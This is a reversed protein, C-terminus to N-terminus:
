VQAVGHLLELASVAAPSCLAEATDFKTRFARGFPGICCPAPQLFSEITEERVADTATTGPMLHQLRYPWSSFRVELNLAFACSMQLAASQAFSMVTAKDAAAAGLWALFQWDGGASPDFSGMMSFLKGATAAVMSLSPDAVITLNLKPIGPEPAGLAQWALKDVTGALLLVVGPQWPRDADQFFTSLRLVRSGESARYHEATSEGRLMADKGEDFWQRVKQPSLWM